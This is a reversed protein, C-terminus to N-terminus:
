SILKGKRLEEQLARMRPYQAALSYIFTNWEKIAKSKNYLARLKKLLRVAAQYSKRTKGEILMASWQHYLPILVAPERAEILQLDNKDISDWTYGRYTINLEVWERFLGEELLYEAYCDLSRPLWSRILGIFEQDYKSNEVAQLCYKCIDEFVVTRAEKIDPSLWSVWVLLKDWEEAGAFYELYFLMDDVSKEKLQQLVSLADDERGAALRLGALGLAAYYYTQQKTKLKAMLEELYLTEQELCDSFSTLCLLRYLMLWNFLPAKMQFLRERTVEVAKQLFTQFLPQDKEKQKSSLIAAYSQMFDDWIEEMQYHDVYAPKVDKIQKELMDMFFLNSHFRYLASNLSPWSQCYVSVVDVFEDYLRARFYLESAFFDSFSQSPRKRSERIRSYAIEFYDYWLEVPGEMRPVGHGAQNKMYLSSKKLPTKKIKNEMLWPDHYHIFVAAIHECLRKKACTCSSQSFNDIHITVTYMKGDDVAAYVRPGFIKVWKIRNREYLSRGKEYSEPDMCRTAEAAMILMKENPIQDVYM